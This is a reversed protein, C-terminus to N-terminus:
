ETGYTNFYRNSVCFEEEEIDKCNTLLNTTELSVSELNLLASQQAAVSAKLNAKFETSSKEIALKNSDVDITSQARFLTDLKIELEKVIKSSFIKSVDDM